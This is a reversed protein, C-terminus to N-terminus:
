TERVTGTGWSCYCKKQIHELFVDTIQFAISDDDFDLDLDMKLFEQRDCTLYTTDRTDSVKESTV